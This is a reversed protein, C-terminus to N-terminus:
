AIPMLSKGTKPSRCLSDLDRFCTLVRGSVAGQILFGRRISFPIHADLGDQDGLATILFHGLNPCKM